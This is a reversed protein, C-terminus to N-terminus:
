NGETVRVDDIIPGWGPDETMLTAFEITTEKDTATFRWTRKVWGPAERTKGATDFTFEASRGAASVAMRKKTVVSDPNGALAFTVQYVRGPRTPFTQAIAGPGSGHLDISRRGHAATWLVGVHDVNGRSVVWGPVSNGDAQAFNGVDPGEEFSPNKLLNVKKRPAPAAALLPVLALLALSAAARV